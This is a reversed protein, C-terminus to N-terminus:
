YREEEFRPLQIFYLTAGKIFYDNDNSIHCKTIYEKIM